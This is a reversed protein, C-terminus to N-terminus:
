LAADGDLVNSTARVLSRTSHRHTYRQSEHDPDAPRNWPMPRTRATPSWQRIALPGAPQRPPPEPPEMRPCRPSSRPTMELIYSPM